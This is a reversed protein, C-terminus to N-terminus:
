QHSRDAKTMATRKQMKPAREQLPQAFFFSFFSDQDLRLLFGLGVGITSSSDRHQQM